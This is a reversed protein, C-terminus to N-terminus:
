VQINPSANELMSECIFSKPNDSRGKVPFHNPLNNERKADKSGETKGSLRPLNNERKVDKTGESKGSLRWPQRPKIDLVESVPKGSYKPSCPQRPMKKMQNSLSERERHISANIEDRSQHNLVINSSERERHISANLEDRSQQNLAINSSERERHISANLEDRSQQNLAINSSERERHISTNSEARSQHIVNPKARTTLVKCSTTAKEKKMQNSSLEREQHISTNPKARATLVKSSSTTKEKKMRNSSSEREKHISPDPKAGSILVKSSSTAKGKKMQNSSSEREHHISPNPKARSILVKSSSTTNAKPKAQQQEEEAEKTNLKQALKQFFERRKAAREESRLSFPSFVTPSSCAVNGHKNISKLNGSQSVSEGEEKRSRCLSQDLKTRDRKNARQPAESPCKSIGSVSALTSTQQIKSDRSTKTISRVFRSNVIKELIPSMPKKTEERHSFFKIAMQRSKPNSKKKDTMVKGNNRSTPASKDTVIPQLATVPKVRSKFKSSENKTTLRTTLTLPKKPKKKMSLMTDGVMAANKTQTKEKLQAVNESVEVVVNEPQNLSKLENEVPYSQEISNETGTTELNIEGHIPYSGCTTTNDGENGQVEEIGMHSSNEPLQFLMTCNDVSPNTVNLHGQDGLAEETGEYSGNETLESEMDIIQTAVNLEGEERQTEEIGVCSSPETLESNVTSHDNNQNTVNLDSSEDVAANQQELLLAAKKAAAKKHQAEFYAKKEAVSGPKAYKGVEELYRNHTFSSWKEWDLSESMFRGFSVSTSLARLLPDGETREQSPQSFSRVLCASSSSEGM